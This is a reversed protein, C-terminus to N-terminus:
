GIRIQYSGMFLQLLELSSGGEIGGGNKRGGGSSMRGFMLWSEGSSEVVFMSMVTVEM